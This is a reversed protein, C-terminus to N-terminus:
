GECTKRMWLTRGASNFPPTYNEPIDPQRFESLSYYPIALTPPADPKTASLTGSDIIAGRQDVEIWLTEGTVAPREITYVEASPIEAVAVACDGPVGITTVTEYREADHPSGHGIALGTFFIGTCLILGLLRKM